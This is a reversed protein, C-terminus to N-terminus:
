DGNVNKNPGITVSKCFPHQSFRRRTSKIANTRGPRITANSRFRVSKLKFDSMKMQWVDDKAGPFSYYLVTNQLFKRWKRTRQTFNLDSDLTNSSRIEEFLKKCYLNENVNKHPAPDCFFDRTRLIPLASGGPYRILLLEYQHYTCRKPSMQMFNWKIINLKHSILFFNHPYKLPM